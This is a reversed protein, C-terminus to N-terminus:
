LKIEDDGVPWVVLFCPDFLTIATKRLALNCVAILGLMMIPFMFGPVVAGAASALTLLVFVMMAVSFWIFRSFMPVVEASVAALLLGAASAAVLLV